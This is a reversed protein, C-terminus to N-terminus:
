LPELTYNYVNKNYESKAKKVVKYITGEVKIYPSRINETTALVNNVFAYKVTTGSASDSNESSNSPTYFEYYDYDRRSSESIIIPKRDYIVM